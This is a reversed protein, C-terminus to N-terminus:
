LRLIDFHIHLIEVNGIKGLQEVLDVIDRVLTEVKYDAVNSPKSSLGYGRQDIAVVRYFLNVIIINLNTTSYNYRYDKSFHKMQYRWAYWCEPFGHVFVM